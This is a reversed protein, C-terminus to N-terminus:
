EEIDLQIEKEKKTSSGSRCLSILDEESFERGDNAVMYCRESVKKILFKKAQADDSNQMLEILSRGAYSESIYKEM